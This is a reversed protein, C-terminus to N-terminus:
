KGNAVKRPYKKYIAFYYILGGIYSTLIVLLLWLLKPNNKEPQGFEDDNRKILDILMFIWLILAAFILIFFICEAIFFIVPIVLFFPLFDAGTSGYLTSSSYSSLLILPLIM